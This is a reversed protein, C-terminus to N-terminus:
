KFKNVANIIYFMISELHYIPRYNNNFHKLFQYTKKLIQSVDTEDLFNNEIFHRIIYWLCETMDLNYTLIEYLIDRFHTFVINKPEKIEKIINDCIINFIDSPMEKANQLLPFSRIEKINLIGDININDLIDNVQEDKNRCTKKYDIIRNM